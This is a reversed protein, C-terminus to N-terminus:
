DEGLEEFLTNADILGGAAGLAGATAVARDYVAAFYHEAIAEHGPLPPPGLSRPVASADDTIRLDGRAEPLKDSSGWFGVGESSRRGRGRRSRSRGAKGSGKGGSGKNGNKGGSGKNGDKGGPGKNGPGKGESAKDAGKGAGKGGKRQNGRGQGKRRSAGSSKADTNPQDAAEGHEDSGSGTTGEVSRTRSRTRNRSRTRPRDGGEKERTGGKEDKKDKEDATDREPTQSSM